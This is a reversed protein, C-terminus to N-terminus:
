ILSEDYSYKIKNLNIIPGGNNIWFIQIENKFTLLFFTNIDEKIPKVGDM